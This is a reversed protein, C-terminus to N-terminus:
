LLIVCRCYYEVFKGAVIVDLSALTYNTEQWSFGLKVRTIHHVFPFEATRATVMFSYVSHQKIVRIVIHVLSHLIEM